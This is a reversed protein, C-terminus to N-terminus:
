KVEKMGTKMGSLGQQTVPRDAVRIQSSLVGVTGIPGGRSGLRATGPPMGTAVRINGSPPRIGSPPRGTLVIGGRSVPRAASPKHNSAM